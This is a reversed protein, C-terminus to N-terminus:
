RRGTDEEDTDSGYDLYQQGRDYCCQKRIVVSHLSVPSFLSRTMQM